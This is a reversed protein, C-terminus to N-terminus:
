PLSFHVTAWSSSHQVAGEQAGDVAVALHGRLVTATREGGVVRAVIELEMM